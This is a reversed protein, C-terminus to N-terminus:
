ALGSGPWLLGSLSIREKKCVMERTVWVLLLIGEVERFVWVVKKYFPIDGAMDIFLFTLAM